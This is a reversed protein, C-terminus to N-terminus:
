YYHRITINKAHEGDVVRENWGNYQNYDMLLEEIVSRNLDRAGEYYSLPKDTFWSPLNVCGNEIRTIISVYHIEREKLNEIFVSLKKSIKM